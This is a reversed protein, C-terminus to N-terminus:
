RSWQTMGWRPRFRDNWPHGRRPEDQPYWPASPNLPADKKKRAHELADTLLKNERLLREIAQVITEDQRLALKEIL